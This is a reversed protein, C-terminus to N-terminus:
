EDVIVAVPEDCENIENILSTLVYQQANVHGLDSGLAPNARRIAEILDQPVVGPQQRQRGGHAMRGQGRRALEERWLAALTTKGYGAPAHIM